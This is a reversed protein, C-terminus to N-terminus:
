IGVLSGISYRRALLFSKNYLYWYTNDLIDYKLFILVALPSPVTLDNQGGINKNIAKDNEKPGDYLYSSCRSDVSKNDGFASTWKQKYDTECKEM